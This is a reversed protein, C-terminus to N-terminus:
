SVLWVRTHHKNEKSPSRRIVIFFFTFIYVENTQIHRGIIRFFNAAPQHYISVKCSGQPQWAKSAEDYILVEAPASVLKQESIGVICFFCILIFTKDIHVIVIVIVIVIVTVRSRIVNLAM